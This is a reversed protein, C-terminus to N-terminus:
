RANSRITAIREGAFDEDGVRGRGIPARHHFRGGADDGIAAAPGTMRRDDRAFEANGGDDPRVRRRSHDAGAVSIETQQASPSM